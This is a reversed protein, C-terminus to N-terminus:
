WTMEVGYSAAGVMAVRWSDKTFTAPTEVKWDVPPLPTQSPVFRLPGAQWSGDAQGIPQDAFTGRWEGTAGNALQFADALSLRKASLDFAITRVYAVIDASNDFARKLDITITLLNGNLVPVMVPPTPDNWEPEIIAGTSKRFLVVNHYQSSQIIGSQSDLNATRFVWRGPTGPLYLQTEGQDKHDHSELFAGAQVCLMSGDDGRAFLHGVGSAFYYRGTLPAAAGAVNYCTMWAYEPRVSRDWRSLLDRAHAAQTLDPVLMIGWTLIAEHVDREGVSPTDGIPAFSTADPTCAWCWYELHQAIKCDATMDVGFSHLMLWVCQFLRWQATGYGTGEPPGDLGAYRAAIMPRLATLKDLWVQKQSHAAWYILGLWHSRFFYNNSPNNTAWGSWHYAKGGWTALTPNWVNYVCQDLIMAADAHEQATLLDGCWNLVMVWDEVKDGAYLYSDNSFFTLNQQANWATLQAALQTRFQGVAWTRLSEAPVDILNSGSTTLKYTGNPNLAKYTLLVHKISFGFQNALGAGLQLAYRLWGGFAAQVGNVTKWTSWMPATIDVPFAPVVGAPAPPPPLPSASKVFAQINFAVTRM